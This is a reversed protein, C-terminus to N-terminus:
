QYGGVAFHVGFPNALVVASGKKIPIAHYESENRITMALYDSAIQTQMLPEVCIAEDLVDRLSVDINPKLNVLDRILDPIVGRTNKALIPGHTL